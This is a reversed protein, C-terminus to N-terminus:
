PRVLAADDLQQQFAISNGTRFHGISAPATCVANVVVRKTAHRATNLSAKDGKLVLRYGHAAGESVV